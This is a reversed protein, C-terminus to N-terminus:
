EYYLSKWGPMKRVGWAQRGNRREGAAAREAAGCTLECIKKRSWEARLNAALNPRATSYVAPLQASTLTTSTATTPTRSAAKSEAVAAAFIKREVSRRSTEFRFPHTCTTIFESRAAGGASPPTRTSRRKGRKRSTRQSSAVSQSRDPAVAPPSCQTHFVSSSGARKGAASRMSPPTASMQLMEDARLRRNLARFQEEEWMKHYFYNSFMKRPCPRARFGRSKTTTTTPPPPPTLSRSAFPDPTPHYQHRGHEHGVNEASASKDTAFRFPKIKSQLELM